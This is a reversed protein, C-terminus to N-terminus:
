ADHMAAPRAATADPRGIAYLGPTVAYRMRGINLRVRAAGLWERWTWASEIHPVDPM